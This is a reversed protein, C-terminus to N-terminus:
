IVHCADFKRHSFDQTVFSSYRRPATRLNLENEDKDTGAWRESITQVTPKSVRTIFRYQEMSSSIPATRFPLFVSRRSRFLPRALRTAERSELTCPVSLCWQFLRFITSTLKSKCVRFFKASFKRCNLYPGELIMTLETRFKIKFLFYIILSGPAGADRQGARSEAYKPIQTNTYPRHVHTSNRPVTAKFPSATSARIKCKMPPISKSMKRQTHVKTKLWESSCWDLLSGQSPIIVKVKM